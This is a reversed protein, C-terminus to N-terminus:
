NKVTKESIKIKEGPKIRSTRKQNMKKLQTVSVHYKKAIDWLTDGYKVTYYKGSKDLPPSVKKNTTKKASGGDKPTWIILKQGPRIYRGYRLGNWARIKSARTNFDEAIQGLTDGKKVLYIQKQHGAINKIKKPTKKSRYKKPSASYAYRHAKNQPVPILLYKGARIRSSRLKNTSKIISISTHYKQAITSLSEGYKIKHRVWSRKKSDPISAYEKEFLAKKGKPIYLRFNKVGPPTVWRLIAPNITKIYSYTTDVINAIVNLDVSESILVTDVEIPPYKEVDFGFQQPNQAIITAALFKPVYNRTQRPLRYLEWYNSTKYRKINRAVRNPNMNYGALALYWHGFRKYLDAFHDAAAVTAKYPDKREDFWWNHRLGYYRGTASIFQWMGVAKAYSRAKPNFGSEIMAVYLLEPPLNKQELVKKIGEEYRGIRKLWRTFAKRGKTQFYKMFVRVKKNLTIPFGASTDVITENSSILSDTFYFAEIEAINETIYEDDAEIGDKDFIHEYAEDIEQFLSDFEGWEQLTMRDDNSFRAITEFIQNYYIEAGATDGKALKKQIRKYDNFVSDIKGSFSKSAWLHDPLIDESPPQNQIQKPQFTQCSFYFVPLLIILYQYRM